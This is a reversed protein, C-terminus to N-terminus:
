TGLPHLKLRCPLLRRAYAIAIWIVRRMANIRGEIFFIWFDVAPHAQSYLPIFFPRHKTLRNLMRFPTIIWSKRCMIITLCVFVFEIRKNSGPGFRPILPQYRIM